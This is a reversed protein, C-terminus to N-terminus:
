SYITVKCIIGPMSIRVKINKVCKLYPEEGAKKKLLSYVTQLDNLNFGFSMLITNSLVM